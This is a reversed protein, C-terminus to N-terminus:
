HKIVKICIFHSHKVDLNSFLKGVKGVFPYYGSGKGAQITFKYAEFMKRLSYYTFVKLHPFARDDVNSNDKKSWTLTREKYHPSLPNGIHIKQITHHSFDQFGLILAVINHWSALNETSIVAYGGPKLVRYIEKIFHDTKALHEIVQNSIVIDFFNNAFPWKKEINVYKTKIGRKQAALLRKKVADIGIINNTKIKKQFLLTKQGDGCGVDLVSASNNQKILDLINKDNGKYADTWLNKYSLSIM